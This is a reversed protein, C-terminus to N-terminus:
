VTGYCPTEMLDVHSTVCYWLLPDGNPGCTLDCLVMVSPRRLDVRSTVCYWLLPDGNPGCPFDCLVM